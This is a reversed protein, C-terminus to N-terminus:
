SEIRFPRGACAGDALAIGADLVTIGRPTISGPASVTSRPAPRVCGPGGPPLAATLGSDATLRAVASSTHSRSM